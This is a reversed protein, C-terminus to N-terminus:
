VVQLGAALLHVAVGGLVLRAVDAQDQELREVAEVRAAQEQRAEVLPQTLSKPLGKTAATGFRSM